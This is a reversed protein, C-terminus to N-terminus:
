ALCEEANWANEPCDDANAPEEKVEDLVGAQTDVAGFFSAGGANECSADGAKPSVPSASGRAAGVDEILM